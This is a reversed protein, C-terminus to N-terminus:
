KITNIKPKLQMTAMDNRATLVTPEVAQGYYLFTEVVLQIWRKRQKDMISENNETPAVQLTNGCVPRNWLHPSYQLRVPSPHSYTKLAKHVYLPISIDVYGENYNWDLQVGYSNKGDYDISIKYNTRLSHILHQLDQQSHYKVRLDDVCLAFATKRKNHKFLRNTLPIPHHGDTAWRTLLLKYAM